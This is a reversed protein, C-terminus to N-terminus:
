NPISYLKNNISTTSTLDTIHVDTVYFKTSNLKASTTPILNKVCIIM